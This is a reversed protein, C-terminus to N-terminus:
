IAQYVSDVRVITNSNTVNAYLQVNGSIINAEFNALANGATCIVGYTSITATTNNHVLLIKAIERINTNRITSTVTYEASSYTNALFYDITALSSDAVVLTNASLNVESGRTNWQTTPVTTASGSYIYIGNNDALIQMYGNTSSIGIVVATTALRRVDIVDGVAPAETFTLV